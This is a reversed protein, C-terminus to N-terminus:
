FNFFTYIYIYVEDLASNGNKETLEFLWEIANYPLMTQSHASTIASTMAKVLKISLIIAM